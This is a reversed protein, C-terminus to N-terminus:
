THLYIEQNHLNLFYKLYQMSNKFCNLVNHLYTNTYDDAILICFSALLFEKSSYTGKITLYCGTRNTYNTILNKKIFCKNTLFIFSVDVYITFIPFKLMKWLNVM